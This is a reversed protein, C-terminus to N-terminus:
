THTINCRITVSLITRPNPEKENKNKFEWGGGIKICQSHRGKANMARGSGFFARLIYFDHLVFFISIIELKFQRVSNTHSECSVTYLFASQFIFFLWTILHLECTMVLLNSKAPADTCPFPTCAPIKVRSNVMQSQQEKLLLFETPEQHM